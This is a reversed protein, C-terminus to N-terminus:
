PVKALEEKVRRHVEPSFVGSLLAAEKAAFDARWAAAEAESLSVITLKRGSISLMAKVAAGEKREVEANIGAVTERIAKEVLPLDKADIRAWAEARAVIGGILPGVRFDLMNGALGFWQYAAAIMPSTLVSDVAGVSLSTLIESSAIPVGKYGQAMCARRSVPQENDGVLRLARQEDPLRAAKNSFFRLWGASTWAALRLGKAALREDFYGKLGSFVRDLSAADPILGPMSLVAFGPDIDILGLSTFIAAASRGAKRQSLLEAASYRREASIISSVRGETASRVLRALRQMGLEWPSGEPVMSVVRILAPSASLAACLAFLPALTALRKM